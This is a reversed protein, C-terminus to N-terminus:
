CKQSSSVDAQASEQNRKFFITGMALHIMVDIKVLLVVTCCSSVVLYEPACDWLYSCWLIHVSGRYELPKQYSSNLNNHTWIWTLEPFWATNAQTYYDPLKASMLEVEWRANSMPALSCRLKNLCSGMPHPEPRALSKLWASRTWSQLESWNGDKFFCGVSLLM